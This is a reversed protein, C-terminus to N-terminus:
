TLISKGFGKENSRVISIGENGKGFLLLKFAM